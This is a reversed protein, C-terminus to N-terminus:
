DANDVAKDVSSTPFEFAAQRSSQTARAAETRLWRELVEEVHRCEAENLAQGVAIGHWKALCARCCTATAHQAVFVPHGRFPTQKGDNAPLAPALRSAIFARAHRMTDEIGKQALYSREESKLHFRRRFPSRQLTRFVADINKM